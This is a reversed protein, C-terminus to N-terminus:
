ASRGDIAIDNGETAACGELEAIREQQQAILEHSAKLALGLQEIVYETGQM